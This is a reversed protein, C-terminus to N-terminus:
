LRMELALLTQIIQDVADIAFASDLYRVSIRVNACEFPQIITRKLPDVLQGLARPHAKRAFPKKTSILISRTLM